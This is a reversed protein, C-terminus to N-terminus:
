NVTCCPKKVSVSQIVEILMSWHCCDPVTIGHLSTLSTPVSRKLPLSWNLLLNFMPGNYLSDGTTGVIFQRLMVAYSVYFIVLCVFVVASFFVFSSLMAIALANCGSPRGVDHWNSQV